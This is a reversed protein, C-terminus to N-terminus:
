ADQIKSRAQMIVDGVCVTNQLSAQPQCFGGPIRCPHSATIANIQPRHRRRHEPSFSTASLFRRTNPVLHSDTIANIKPRHRRRHEPSFSAASLFRRTYKPIHNWQHKMLIDGCKGTVEEAL